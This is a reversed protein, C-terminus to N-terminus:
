ALFALEAASMFQHSQIGSPTTKNLAALNADLLSTPHIRCRELRATDVLVEEPAGDAVIRGDAVLMIRNAYTIALDLDHTIFALAEFGPRANASDADTRMHSVIDDMFHTYNAYDQGATPEDMIVIRPNMTLISAISIRKQQGFSLALPPQEETGTLAVTALANDTNLAITEADLGINHPGFALEERVTPAFLMHSPSQFVFGVTRALQAVTQAASDVGDVLVQGRVPRNLGIAHKLLTSKGAGNPGILAIIEGRRIACNIDHLVEPGDTYGFGVQRYEIIPPHSTQEPSKSRAKHPVAIGTARVRQMVVSAPLKIERWDVSQMLGAADGDYTIRGASMTVCHEPHIALVEEIRHEIIVVAIGTDALHRMLALAERGSAPDLSALPEDLLVARPRMALVGALAVKQKEGGSLLFTERTLLTSIHLLEATHAIRESIEDRPLGLNELGFAIESTVDSAVIQKEPDQLVTGVIQSITALTLAATDQGFLEIAGSLEGGTYSRPILGNICRILTTKGCGSAGAILTVEGPKFETSLGDLTRERQNRYHYSLNTVRITM